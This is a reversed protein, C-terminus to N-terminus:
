RPDSKSATKIEQLVAMECNHCDFFLPFRRSNNVLYLAGKRGNEKLCQGIQARICYKSRLLEGDRHGIEYNLERHSSPNCMQMGRCHMASLSQALDRRVSNLQSSSLHALPLSEGAVEDLKFVYEEARKGIQSHYMAKAREVNVAWAQAKLRVEASRGDESVASFIADEGDVGYRVEVRICRRCPNEEMYKEFARNLNRYLVVGPVLGKPARCVIKGDHCVDARFGVIQSKDIFAFGDGNSLDEVKRDLTIESTHVGRKEVKKVVALMEGMSKPAEFNAWDSKDEELCLRTYSRNFTKDLAPTFGEVVRGFSARRYEEPHAAIISDLLLSYHRTVNRVYSMNKLRGEIKLSTVGAQLLSYLDKSLNLDRLSLLAKNKLWVHGNEDVLDYLNRCAQICEGRDASRGTLSESFTCGGSYGVCLAGHVFCEVECDFGSSIQRIQELSLQRELVVRGCGAEQFLHARSLDRISCQTSAHLPVKIDPFLCLRPDRIIFASAGAEQCELMQTHVLPLEDDRLLINFTVFVRVGFKSAYDCLRKIESVPNAADKRAGFQPGAIYVADAGCDIAAIGIDANRAPALLEIPRM